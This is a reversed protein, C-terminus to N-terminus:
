GVGLIPDLGKIAVKDANRITLRKYKDHTWLLYLFYNYKLDVKSRSKNSEYRLRNIRSDRHVPYTKNLFKRSRIWVPIVKYEIIEISFDDTPYRIYINIM